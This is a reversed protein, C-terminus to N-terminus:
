QQKITDDKKWEKDIVLYRQGGQMRLLIVTDDVELKNHIKYRWKNEEPFSYKEAGILEGRTIDVEYDMVARTLILHKEELELKQEVLIKLPSESTVTGFCLRVPNMAESTEESAKKIAKVFDNMNRLM